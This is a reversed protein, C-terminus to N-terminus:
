GRWASRCWCSVQSGVAPRHTGRLRIVGLLRWPVLSPRGALRDDTRRKKRTVGRPAPSGMGRDATLTSNRGSCGALSREAEGLKTWAPSDGFAFDTEGYGVFAVEMELRQFCGPSRPWLDDAFEARWLPRSGTKLQGGSRALAPGRRRQRATTASPLSTGGHPGTPYNRYDDTEDNHSTDKACGCAQGANREGRVQGGGGEKLGVELSYPQRRWCEPALAPPERRSRAQADIEQELVQRPAGRGIM